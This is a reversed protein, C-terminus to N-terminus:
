YAILAVDAVAAVDAVISVDYLKWVPYVMRESMVRFPCINFNDVWHLVTTDWNIIQSSNM